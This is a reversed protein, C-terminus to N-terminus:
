SRESASVRFWSVALGLETDDSSDPNLENWPVTDITRIVLRTFPRTSAYTDPVVGSYLIGSEAAARQLPVVARNVELTLHELIEPSMATLALLEVTDGASLTFPLDVSAERAPGTWRVAGSPLHQPPRWGVGQFQADGADLTYSGRLATSRAGLEHERRARLGDESAAADLVARVDDPASAKAADLALGVLDHFGLAATICADRVLAQWGADPDPYAASRKLYYANAWFLQGSGSEFHAVLTDFYNSEPVTWDKKANRQAYHALDKLRWLVFGNERLLADIQGFLPVGEYLENFEVEVEVARVTDLAERAGQLVALESGQTDIKVVDVRSVGADAAWEDFQTVHVSTTGTVRGGELEPHREVVDPVSPYLSCGGPDETLHLTAEGTAEGLALPVISVKPNSAYEKKMREYEVDDPEFGILRCRDGLQEWAQGFGWRCGVDVVVIPDDLLEALLGSVAAGHTADM